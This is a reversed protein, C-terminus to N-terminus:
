SSLTQPKLETIITEMNHQISSYQAHEWNTHLQVIKIAEYNQKILKHNRNECIINYKEAERNLITNTQSINHRRKHSYKQRSATSSNQQPTQTTLDNTWQQWSYKGPGM